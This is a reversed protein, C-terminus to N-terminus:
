SIMSLWFDLVVRCWEGHHLGFYKGGYCVFVWTGLVVDHCGFRVEM